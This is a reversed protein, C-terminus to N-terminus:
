FPNGLKRLMFLVCDCGLDKGLQLILSAPRLLKGRGFIFKSSHGFVTKLFLVM